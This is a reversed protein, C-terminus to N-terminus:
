VYYTQRGTSTGTHEQERGYKLNVVKCIASVIGRIVRENLLLIPHTESDANGEIHLTVTRDKFTCVPRGEAAEMSTVVAANAETYLRGEKLIYRSLIGSDRFNSLQYQRRYPNDRRNYWDIFSNSLRIMFELPPMAISYTGGSFEMPIDWTNLIHRVFDRLMKRQALQTEILHGDLMGKPIIKYDPLVNVGKSAGIGELKRYPGGALSEVQTFDDLESCFLMWFEEDYEDALRLITNNIPGQGTCPITFRTLSGKNIGPLHSHAYDAAWQESTYTARNLSFKNVITGDPEIDVKAYLDKVIVSRDNENTVKVEPFWVLISIGDASKLGEIPNAQPHRERWNLYGERSRFGRMDVRDEGFYYSFIELLRNPKDMLDAYEREWQERETM